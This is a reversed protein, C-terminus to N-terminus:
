RPNPAHWFMGYGPFRSNRPNMFARMWTTRQGERPESCLRDYRSDLLEDDAFLL